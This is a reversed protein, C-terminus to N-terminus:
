SELPDHVTRPAGPPSIGGPSEVHAEIDVRGMGIIKEGADLGIARHAAAVAAFAPLITGLIQQAEGLLLFVLATDDTLGLDFAHQVAMREGTTSRCLARHKQGVAHTEEAAVIVSRM